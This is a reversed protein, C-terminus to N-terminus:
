VEVFRYSADDFWKWQTSTNMAPCAPCDLLFGGHSANVLSVAGTHFATAGLYDPPFRLVHAAVVNNGTHLYPTLDVEDYYKRFRDGKLPGALVYRGNVYLKYRSDASIRVVIKETTELPFTRRLFLSQKDHSFASDKWIWSATFKM